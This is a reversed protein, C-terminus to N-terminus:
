STNLIGTHIGKKNLQRAKELNRRFKKNIESLRKLKRDEYIKPDVYRFKKKVYIKSKPLFDLRKNELLSLTDLYDKKKTKLLKNIVYEDTKLLDKLSIINEKMAKKLLESILVYRTVAEYGSWNEIQLKLFNEAFILASEETSFVIEKKFVRLKYLCKEITDLSFERFAYDIRDACLNPLDKELLSFNHYNAIQKASYGYKNLIDVLEKQELISLHNKDQYDEKQNDGIVWDVIHSFATHSIDHLLGAVQEEKSARLKNLLIYVGLSHDYRSYGDLHFYKNPIGFQNINKLRQFAKTNILELIIPSSIEFTSYIKDNIIM